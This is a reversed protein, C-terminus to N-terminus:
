MVPLAYWTSSPMIMYLKPTALLAVTLVLICALLTQLTPSHGVLWGDTLATLTAVGM